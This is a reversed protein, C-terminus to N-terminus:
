IQNITKMIIKNLKKFNQKITKFPCNKNKLTM